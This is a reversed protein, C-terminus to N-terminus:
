RETPQAGQVRATRGPSFARAPRQASLSLVSHPMWKSFPRITRPPGFVQARGPAMNAFSVFFFFFVTGASLMIGPPGAPRGARACAARGYWNIGTGGEAM